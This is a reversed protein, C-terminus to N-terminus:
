SARGKAVIRADWAARVRRELEALECDTDIIVQAHAAREEHPLQAMIRAQIQEVSLSNRRRIRQVVVEEPAYTVWLEDVLPLWNAEILIAAEVVAVQVGEDRWQQLRDTMMQRIRPHTIGNLQALKEPNGFVIAGLKKRDIEEGAGLIEKGFTEQVDYWAPTGPLYCEHGVKDANLLRAGLRELYRAVTSKGSGVGGTLGIIRM